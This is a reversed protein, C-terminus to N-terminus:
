RLPVAIEMHLEEGFGNLYIERAPGDAERGQQKAWRNSRRTRAWSRRSSAM